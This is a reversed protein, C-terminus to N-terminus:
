VQLTQNQNPKISSKRRKLPIEAMDRSPLPLYGIESIWTALHPISGRVEQEALLSSLWEAVAAGLSSTYCGQLTENLDMCPHLLLQSPLSFHTFIRLTLPWLEALFSNDGWMCNKVQLTVDRGLKMWIWALIYSSNLLCALIYLFKLHWPDYSQWFKNLM